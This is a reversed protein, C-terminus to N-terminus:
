VIWRFPSFSPSFFVAPTLRTTHAVAYSHHNDSGFSVMAQMTQNTNAYVQMTINKAIDEPENLLVCNFCVAYSELQDCPELCVPGVTNAECEDLIPATSACTSNCAPPITQSNFTILSSYKRRYHPHSPATATTLSGIPSAASTLLVPALLLAPTPALM